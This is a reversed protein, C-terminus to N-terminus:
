KKLMWEEYGGLVNIVKFGQRYLIQCAKQSTMGSRCYLFYKDEKNLYKSPNLILKEFPINIAGSIHNNNYSQESRIDILNIKNILPLLEDISINSM